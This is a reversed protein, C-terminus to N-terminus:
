EFQLTKENNSFAPYTGDELSPIKLHTPTAKLSNRGFTAIPLPEGQVPKSTDSL